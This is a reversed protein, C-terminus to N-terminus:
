QTAAAARTAERWESMAALVGQAAKRKRILARMTDPSTTSDIQDMAKGAEDWQNLMQRKIADFATM